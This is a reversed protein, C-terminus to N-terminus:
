KKIVGGFQSALTERNGTKLFQEIKVNRVSKRKGGRCGSWEWPGRDTGENRIEAPGWPFLDQSEQSLQMM